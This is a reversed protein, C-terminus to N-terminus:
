STPMDLNSTGSSRATKVNADPAPACPVGVTM